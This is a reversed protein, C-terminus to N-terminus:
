GKDCTKVTCTGAACASTGHATSCPTCSPAGCGFAPDNLAVCNGNCMQMGDTCGTPGPRSPAAVTDTPTAAAAGADDATAPQNDDVAPTAQPQQLTGAQNDLIS